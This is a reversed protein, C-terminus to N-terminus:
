LALPYDRRVFATVMLQGLGPLQFVNEILVTGSVLGGIALGMVALTPLVANPLAIRRVVQREPMGMARAFRVDDLALVDVLASRLSRAVLAFAGLGLVLAPLIMVQLNALPDSAFPVYGGAGPLLEPFREGAVIVCVVALWYSPVSLALVSVLRAAGDVPRGQHLAAWAGLALGLTIAGGAALLGLELSVPLADAIQEAVSSGDAFSEGFDGTVVGQLYDTYQEFLPRDLGLRNEIAARAEPNAAAAPAFSDLPGDAAARMLFFMATVAVFVVLIMGGTRRGILRLM